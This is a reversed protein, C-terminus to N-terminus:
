DVFPLLPQVHRRMTPSGLAISPGPRRRSTTHIAADIGVRDLVRQAATEALDARNCDDSLHLQVLHRLRGPTSRRLIAALLAAAQENSLHGRDGLVRRILHPHRGSGLQMPVDHNFELALLDVDALHAALAPQWSGLDAAYGVAWPAGRHMGDLRFGCTAADDHDLAIPVFRCRSHLEVVQGPQYHRILGAASLAAFARRGQDIAQVHEAHCHIPVRLRAFHSLMTPRWHDAHTHTLIVADIRNWSLRAKRLRLALQRPPLGFDILVGFGGADLLCANGASGSALVHFHLSM